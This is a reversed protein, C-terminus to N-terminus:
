LPDDSNLDHFDDFSIKLCVCKAIDSYYINQVGVIVEVVGRQQDECFIMMKPIM